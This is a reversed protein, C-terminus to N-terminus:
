SQKCEQADPKPKSSDDDDEDSDDDEDHDESLDDEDDEDDDFDENLDDEDIEEYALAEGTFWDIARPILKEKIDEGLQYDLELRDEIDYAAEEDDEAPPEPPSFFNFFSETPVTKKVIRTQKTNKNRQKKQEIRVTLDKEAKWNIKDGEAHDYIFDGGYGSESQYFYTKSITKNTFYDNEAFEFILRFGPKDLYEMRIDTLHKLAGEDRDTIMEALSIQNKMASLWFEPIGSVPETSADEAEEAKTEAKHAEEGDEEEDEEEEEEGAAIEEATPENAGNIIKSRKEYLPTFKAFYKKELQLVEEQFEAELKSHEKQIGKLGSVRRKVQPPLSEIYGSSRGVLSGLKGQIMSVLRPNQAFLSAAAALDVPEESISPVGPQQAHSSIPANNAPTNQPTPAAADPRKNRIPEAM